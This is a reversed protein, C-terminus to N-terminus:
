PPLHRRLFALLPKRLRGDEGLAALKIHNGPHLYLEARSGAAELLLNPALPGVRRDAQGHILLVPLGTFRRLERTPDVQQPDIGIRRAAFWLSASGLPALPGLFMQMRNEFASDLSSYCGILVVAELEPGLQSLCVAAAGMSLGIWGVGQLGDRSRRLHGLVADADRAELYGASIREGGSRGHGRFDFRFVGYGAQELVAALGAMQGSSGHYGHALVLVSQDPNMRSYSTLDVGDATRLQQQDYGRPAPDNSGPWPRTMFRAIM